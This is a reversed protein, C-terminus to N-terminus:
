NEDMWLEKKSPKRKPLLPDSAQCVDYIRKLYQIHKHVTAESVNLMMAQQSIPMGQVRTRMITEDIESLCAESIFRELTAKTWPVQKSM